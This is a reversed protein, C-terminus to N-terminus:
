YCGTFFGIVPSHRCRCINAHLARHHSVANKSKENGEIDIRLPVDAGSNSCNRMLLARTPM